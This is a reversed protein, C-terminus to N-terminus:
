ESGKLARYELVLVATVSGVIIRRNAAVSATTAGGVDSREPYM